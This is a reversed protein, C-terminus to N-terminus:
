VIAEMRQRSVLFAVTEERRQIRVPQGEEAQKILGPLQSQAQTV